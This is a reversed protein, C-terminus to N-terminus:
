YEAAAAYYPLKIENSPRSEAGNADYATLWVIDGSEGDIETGVRSPDSIDLVMEGNRYVRFGALDTLQSGDEYEVPAVWTVNQRVSTEGSGVCAMLIGLSGVFLVSRITNM